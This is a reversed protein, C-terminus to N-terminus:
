HIISYRVTTCNHSYSKNLLQLMTSQKWQLQAPTCVSLDALLSTSSSYLRVPRGPTFNLQLVFPCTQWSHLQAPICVSLDALLSTSSSYLRFPRGPTFNLQLVFPCSHLQAPTCISLDALLSTSSSYLHVPRGPTFYLACSCTQIVITGVNFHLWLSMAVGLVPLDFM